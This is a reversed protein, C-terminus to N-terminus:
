EWICLMRGERSMDNEMEIKFALSYRYKDIRDSLESIMISELEIWKGALLVFEDEKRYSYYQTRNIGCQREEKM